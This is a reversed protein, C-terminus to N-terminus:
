KFLASSLACAQGRSHHQAAITAASQGIWAAYGVQNSEGIQEALIIGNKHPLPGDIKVVYESVNSV